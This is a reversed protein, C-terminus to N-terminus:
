GRVQDRRQVGPRRAARHGHHRRRRLRHDERHHPRHCGRWRGGAAYRLRRPQDRGPAPDRPVARCVSERRQRNVPRVLRRRGRRGRRRQRCPWRGSRGRHLPLDARGDRHRVPQDSRRLVARRRPRDSVPGHHRPRRRWLRCEPRRRRREPRCQGAHDRLRARHPRSRQVAAATRRCRRQRRRGQDRRPGPRRRRVQRGQDQGPRWEPQRRRRQDQLQGEVTDDDRDTAKFKLDFVLNDEFSGTGNDTKDDAPDNNSDPHDLPKLLTFKYEGGNDLSEVAVTFVWNAPVNTGTYGILTEHRQGLRVEGHDGHSILNPQGSTTSCSRSAATPASISASRAASAHVASMMARAAKSATRCLRRRGRDRLVDPERQRHLRGPLRVHRGGQVRPAVSDPTGDGRARKSWSSTNPGSALRAPTSPRSKSVTSGSRSAMRRPIALARRIPSASSTTTATSRRRCGPLHIRQDLGAQRRGSKLADSDLEAYHEGDKADIQPVAGDAQIELGAQTQDTAAGSTWGPIQSLVGWNNDGRDLKGGDETGCTRSAATSWCTSTTARSTM